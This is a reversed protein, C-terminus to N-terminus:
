KPHHRDRIYKVCLSANLVSAYVFRSKYVYSIITFPLLEGKEKKRKKM